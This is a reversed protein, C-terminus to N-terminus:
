FVYYMSAKNILLIGVAIFIPAVAILAWAGLVFVWGMPDEM